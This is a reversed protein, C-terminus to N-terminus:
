LQRDQAPPRCHCDVHRGHGNRRHILFLTITLFFIHIRMLITYDELRGILTRISEFSSSWSPPMLHCNHPRMHYVLYSKNSLNQVGKLHNVYRGLIASFPTKSLNRWILQCDGPIIKGNSSPLRQWGRKELEAIVNPYKDDCIFKM